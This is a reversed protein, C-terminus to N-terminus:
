HIVLMGIAKPISKETARLVSVTVEFEALIGRQLVRKKEAQPLNYRVTMLHNELETLGHFYNIVSVYKVIRPSYFILM